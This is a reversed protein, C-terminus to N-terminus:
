HQWVHVEKLHAEQIHESSWQELSYRLHMPLSSTPTFNLVRRACFEYCSGEYESPQSKSQIKFGRLSKRLCHWIILLECSLDENEHWRFHSFLPSNVSRKPARQEPDEGLENELAGYWCLDRLCQLPAEMLNKRACPTKEFLECHAQMILLCFSIISRLADQIHTHTSWVALPSMWCSSLCFLSLNSNSCSNV